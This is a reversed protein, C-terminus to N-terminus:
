GTIRMAPILAILRFGISLSAASVNSITRLRVHGELVFGSQMQWAQMSSCSIREGTIGNAFSLKDQM